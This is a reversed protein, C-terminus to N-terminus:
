PVVRERVYDMLSPIGPHWADGAAPPNWVYGLDTLQDRCRLVDATTAAAPPLRDAIATNLAPRPLTPQGAFAIALRAAVDLLEHRELEHFRHQYYASQDVAVAHAAGAVTRRDIPEPGRARWLAAGWLQVFYPYCQSASVVDAIASATCNISPTQAALPREIAAATAAEDLRGIGLKEARSWFTASMTNLHQPLGPTGAMVLLFPAEACVTQAANLLVHGIERDLTHCEDLALVLAKRTCRAKLLPALAGRQGDLQWGLKGIGIHFALNDPRLSTFRRPPVLRTALEDLNSIESPTLWVADIDGAEGEQCLWRLLATKGNGRPGALVANRPAGKGARLYALLNRLATQERERGALYPPMQGRGPVFPNPPAVDM